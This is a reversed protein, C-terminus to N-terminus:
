AATEMPDQLVQNGDEPPESDPLSAESGSGVYRMSLSIRHRWPDVSLVRVKVLSGIPLEARTGDGDPIESIHVLGEIGDGVDVFAGFAVTNTVTGEIVEGEVLNDTVVLWPDPLLRKRSLGIRERERDVNLIYVQVEDGVSLVESPHKVRKWEMESVHILGDIGGIDVFAGYKVISRVVGTRVEGAVLEDLTQQRRHRSAIRESLVLRRRKQDVEIV